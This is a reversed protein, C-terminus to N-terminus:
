GLLWSLDKHIDHKLYLLAGGVTTIPGHSTGKDMQNFDGAMLCQEGVSLDGELVLCDEQNQHSHWPIVAGPQLRWYSTQVKNHVDRTLVKISLFENLEIWDVQAAHVIIGESTAPSKIRSMVKQKLRANQQEDMSVPQIDVAMAKMAQQQKDTENSKM